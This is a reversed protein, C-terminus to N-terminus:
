KKGGKGSGSVAVKREAVQVRHLLSEKDDPGLVDLADRLSGFDLRAVNVKRGGHIEQVIPLECLERVFKDFENRVDAYIQNCSDLAQLVKQGGEKYKLDPNRSLGEDLSTVRQKLDAFLDSYAKLRDGEPREDNRALATKQQVDGCGKEAMQMTATDTDSSEGRDVVAAELRADGSPGYAGGAACAALVGILGACLFTRM